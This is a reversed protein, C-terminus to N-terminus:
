VIDPPPSPIDKVLSAVKLNLYCSNQSSANSLLFDLYPKFDLVIKKGQSDNEEFQEKDNTEDDLELETLETDSDISNLVAVSISLMTLCCLAIALANKLFELILKRNQM